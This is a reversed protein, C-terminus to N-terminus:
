SIGNNDLIDNYIKDMLNYFDKVTNSFANMATEYSTQSIGNLIPLSNQARAFSDSDLFGLLNEKPIVNLASIIAIIDCLGLGSFEGMIIEIIQISENAESLISLRRQNITDLNQSSNDGMGDTTDPGFTVTYSSLGFSGSDPQSNAAAGQTNVSNAVVDATSFFIEADRKTVLDSNIVTPFFLGQVSCGNEPGSSSPLPVWYYDGQAEKIKIQADVLKQMMSKITNISQALQEQESPQLISNPDSVLKILNNDKIDPFDAIIQLVNTTSTGLNSSTDSSFRDRIIKELLPRKVNNVSDVKTYSNDPVFPVAILKSQPLVSFDIRADVIFPKIIHTRKSTLKTPFNGNADQFATLLFEREGVLASLDAEFSQNNPDMDFPDNSKDYPVIFKRLATTGGSSLTLVSADLSQTAFIDLNSRAYQERKNSLDEFKKPSIIPHTARTIKDALKINRDGKIIDFGPNYINAREADVVPFGIWRYFAHCRSEQVTEEMKILNAISTIDTIGGKTLSSLINSNQSNISAFSRIDDISVIWDKYLKKIDVDFNQNDESASQNPTNSSDPISM